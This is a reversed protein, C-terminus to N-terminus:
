GLLAGSGDTHVEVVSTGYHEFRVQQDELECEGLRASNHEWFSVNQVRPNPEPDFWVLIPALCKRALQVSVYMESINQM